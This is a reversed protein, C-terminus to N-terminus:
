YCIDHQFHVDLRVDSHVSSLASGYCECSVHEKVGFFNLDGSIVFKYTTDLRPCIVSERDLKHTMSIVLSNNTM